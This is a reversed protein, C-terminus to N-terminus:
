LVGPDARRFATNPSRRVVIPLTLSARDGGYNAPLAIACHIFILFPFAIAGMTPLFLSRM